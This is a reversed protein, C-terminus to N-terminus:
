LRRVAYPVNSGIIPGHSADCGEHEHDQDGEERQGDPRGGARRAQGADLPVAIEVERRRRARLQEALDLAAADLPRAPARRRADDRAGVRAGQAGARGAALDAARLVHSHRSNAGARTKM